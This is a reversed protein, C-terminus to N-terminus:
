EVVITFIYKKAAKIGGEWPQSYELHVRSMGKKLARLTWTEKGPAGVVPVTHRNVNPKPPEFRQSVLRVVSMDSISILEWSFGTTPNSALTISVSGGESVSIEQHTFPEKLIVHKPATVCTSVFAFLSSLFIIRLGM